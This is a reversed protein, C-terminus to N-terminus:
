AHTVAVLGKIALLNVAAIQLVMLVATYIFNRDTEM